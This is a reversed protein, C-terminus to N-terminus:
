PGGTPPQPQTPPKPFSARHEVASRIILRGLDGLPSLNGETLMQASPSRDFRRLRTITYRLDNDPSFRQVLESGVWESLETDYLSLAEAILAHESSLVLRALDHIDSGVKAPSNGHPRLAVPVTKLAILSSVTAVTLSTATGRRDKRIVFIEVMEADSMAMRRALAFARASPESPLVADATDSMVDVTVADSGSGVSVRGATLKVANDSEVLISVMADQDSTVADLDNTLRHVQALRLAVAFGGIIM